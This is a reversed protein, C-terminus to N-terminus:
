RRRRWHWGGSPRIDTRRIRARAAAGRNGSRCKDHHGAKGGAVHARAGGPAGADGARARRAIRRSRSERGSGIASRVADIPRIRDAELPGAGPRAGAAVGRGGPIRDRCLNGTGSGCPRASQTGPAHRGAAPRDARARDAPHRDPERRRRSGVAAFIDRHHHAARAVGSRVGAHRAHGRRARRSKRRPRRRGRDGHPRCGRARDRRRRAEGVRWRCARRGSRVCDAYPAHPDYLHVWLLWPREADAGHLWHLAADIVASAPREAQLQDLANPDRAVRDDYTEFGEALGFRRDLVFAGVVAGTRYGAQRLRVALPQRVDTAPVGNVRAGHAPPLLGTMISTHAPLTLPVNSRAHDFRVGRAALRDLTPTLGKGVRDARLTDITVLLLNRTRAPPPEPARTCAAALVILHLLAIARPLAM